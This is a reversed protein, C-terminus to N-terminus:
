SRKFILRGAEAKAGGDSIKARAEDLQKRQEPTLLARVKADLEAHMLLIQAMAQAHLDALARAKDLSFYDSTTLRRLDDMAKSAEKFKEREVPMQAHMLAFIKDQQAETLQIDRLYPPMPMAGPPADRFLAGPSLALPGSPSFPMVMPGGPSFAPPPCVEPSQATATGHTMLGLPLAIVAASAALRNLWLHETTKM